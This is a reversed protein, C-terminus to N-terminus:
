ESTKETMRSKLMLQSEFEGLEPIWSIEVGEKQKEKKNGDEKFIRRQVCAREMTNKANKQLVVDKMGKDLSEEEDRIAM